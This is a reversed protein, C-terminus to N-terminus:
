DEEDVLDVTVDEDLMFLAEEQLVRQRPHGLLQAMALEYRKAHRTVEFFYSRDLPNELDTLRDYM